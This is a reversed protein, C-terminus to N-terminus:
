FDERKGYGGAKSCFFGVCMMSIGIFLLVILGVPDDRIGLTTNYDMTGAAGMMLVFGAFVLIGSWEYIKSLYSNLITKVNKLREM